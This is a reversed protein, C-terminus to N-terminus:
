GFDFGSDMDLFSALGEGTPSAYQAEQKIETLDLSGELTLYRFTFQANRVVVWPWGLGLTVILLLINGVWLWLYAGGTVTSRFRAYGISTNDWFYRHKKAHFWLWYLGLTPISLFVALIYSGFLDRGHGDFHFRENGFYSHDVMFEHKKTEFYPYYLGFTLMTLMQGKMLLKFYDMVQGRFSFRIGRFSTRSLRYRRAGVKAIPIFLFFIGYAILTAFAKGGEGAGMIDPGIFLLFVPVGFLAVAKLFGILLEKGTGHYAFRDGAFETQGMIYSRVKTKGWFHYIGLTLITLLMNVIQIGFLSGGTGHFTLWHIQSEAPGSFLTGGDGAYPPPDQVMTAPGAPAM